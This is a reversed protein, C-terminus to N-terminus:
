QESGLSKMIEEDIRQYCQGDFIGFKNMLEKQHKVVERWNTGNALYDYVEKFGEIDQCYYKAGQQVFINSTIQNLFDYYIVPVELGLPLLLASSYKGVVVKSSKFMKVDYELDNKYEVLKVNDYKAVYRHHEPKERPHLKIVIRCRGLREVIDEIEKYCQPGEQYYAGSIILCDINKGNDVDKYKEFLSYNADEQLTGTVVIKNKDIGNAVYFEKVMDSSVFVKDCYIGSPADTYKHKWIVKDLLLKLLTRITKEYGLFEKGCLQSTLQLKKFARYLLDSEEEKYIDAILECSILQVAESMVVSKYKQALYNPRPHYYDSRLVVLDINIKKLKRRFGIFNKPLHFCRVDNERCHEVYMEDCTMVRYNNRAALDIFMKGVAPRGEAFVYVNDRCNM